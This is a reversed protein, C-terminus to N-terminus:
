IFKRHHWMELAVFEQCVVRLKTHNGYGYKYAKHVGFPHTSSNFYNEVSFEEAVKVSALRGGLERLCKVFHGDEFHYRPPGCCKLMAPKSRLSFGGNGVLSGLERLPNWDIMPHWPAGIWDLNMNMFYEVSHPSGSCFRSDAQFVLIFPSDFTKWFSCSTLLDSYGNYTAPVVVEKKVHINLSKLFDLVPWFEEKTVVYIPYSLPLAARANLLSDLMVVNLLPDVIVASLNASVFGIFALLALLCVNMIKM